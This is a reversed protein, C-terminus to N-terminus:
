GKKGPKELGSFDIEPDLNAKAVLPLPIRVIANGIISRMRVSGSDLGMLEGIFNKQRPNKAAYDADGLEESTLPRFTNLRIKRGAFRAFDQERRLPRDVGPSSVELEYNAGKFFAEMEPLTELPEDLSRSVTACDEIGIGGTGNTRDIFIRLIKERHLQVEVHVIEYGLPSVLTQLAAMLRDEAARPAEAAFSATSSDLEDM